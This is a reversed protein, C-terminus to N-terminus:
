GREDEEETTEESDSAQKRKRGKGRKPVYDGEANSDATEITIPPDDIIQASVPDEEPPVSEATEAQLVTAVTELVVMSELYELITADDPAKVRKADFRQKAQDLNSCGKLFEAPKIGRRKMYLNWGLM